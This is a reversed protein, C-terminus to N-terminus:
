ALSERLVVGKGNLWEDVERATIQWSEDMPWRAVFEEKFSQYIHPLLRTGDGSCIWCWGGEPNRGSGECECVALEGLHDLLICRALESPGSGGYGWNFGAPSHKVTHPLFEATGAEPDRVSVTHEASGPVFRGYYTKSM